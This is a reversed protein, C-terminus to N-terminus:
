SFSPINQAFSSAISLDAVQRYRSVWQQLLKGRYKNITQIIPVSLGNVSSKIYLTTKPDKPLIWIHDKLL